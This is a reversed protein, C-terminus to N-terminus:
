RNQVVEYSVVKFLPLTAALKESGGDVSKTQTIETDSYNFRLTATWSSQPINAVNKFEATFRVTATFLGGLSNAKGAEAAADEITINEITILRQGVQGLSARYSGPNSEITAADYAATAAGDSHARIFAQQQNWEKPQYSERRIVYQAVMFRKLATDLEMAPPRIAALQVKTSDMQPNNIVLTVPQRVPMLGAMGIAAIVLVVLGIVSIVLFFSRSAIPAIYLETFWHRAEKFYASEALIKSPPQHNKEPLAHGM